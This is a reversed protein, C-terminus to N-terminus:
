RNVGFGGEEADEIFMSTFFDEEELLHRQVAPAAHWLIAFSTGLRHSRPKERFEREGWKSQPRPSAASGTQGEVKLNECNLGRRMRVAM